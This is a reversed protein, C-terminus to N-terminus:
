KSLSGTAGLTVGRPFQWIQPNVSRILLVPQEPAFLRSSQSPILLNRVSLPVLLPVADLDIEFSRTFM